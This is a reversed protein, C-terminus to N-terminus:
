LGIRQACFRGLGIKLLALSTKINVNKCHHMCGFLPHACMCAHTDGLVIFCSLIGEQIVQIKKVAGSNQLILFILPPGIALWQPGGTWDQMHGLKCVLM